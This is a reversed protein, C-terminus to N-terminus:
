SGLSPFNPIASTQSGLGALEGDSYMWPGKTSDQLLGWKSYSATVDALPNQHAFPRKAKTAYPHHVPRICYSIVADDEGTLQTTRVYTEYFTMGVPISQGILQGTCLILLLFYKKM